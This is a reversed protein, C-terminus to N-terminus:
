EGIPRLAGTINKRLQGYLVRLSAEIYDLPVAEDRDHSAVARRIVVNWANRNIAEACDKCAAWDMTSGLPTGTIRFSRAPLIFAPLGELCFDCRPRLQGPIEGVPVPVPPHDEPQDALTHQWRDPGYAAELWDLVRGCVACGHPEPEFGYDTM